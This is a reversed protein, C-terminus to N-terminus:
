IHHYPENKLISFGRYLQELFILRVMQHSFTMPSLSIMADAKKYIEESFGYAGGIVFVIKKLSTNIQKQIFQSFELSTYSEGKEDLLILKDSADLANIILKGERIKQEKIQLSKNKKNEPIEIYEIPCYHTLKEFYQKCGERLYNLETKGICIIKIKM